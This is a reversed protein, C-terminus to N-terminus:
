MTVAPLNVKGLQDNLAKVDKSKLEGWRALLEVLARQQDEVAKLAQTTPRADAGDILNMLSLFGNGLGALGPERNSVGFFDLGGTRGELAAVKKDLNDIANALAGAQQKRANLQERLRRVQGQAERIKAIGEYCNVAANHAAAIAEQPATVRPDLKIEIEQTFAKGDVTLRVSYIGPNVLPGQPQPPTNRYIAAISLSRAFGEPPAYRLDWVWRQMGAKASLTQPPRIWYAPHPLRNEEM